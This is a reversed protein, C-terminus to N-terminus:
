SQEETLANVVCEMQMSRSGKILFTTDSALLKLLSKNLADYSEFHFANEGYALMAHVSLEGITFLGDIGAAKALRGADRHFMEATEGLEGMDGLVLYRAGSHEALVNLAASLSTPNANYTDDIVRSRNKGLKVQLRGKVAAMNELGQKISTLSIDLSLTCAAAALANMVNHRGALPLCINTSVANSVLEFEITSADQSVSINKACVDALGSEVGFSIQDLHTCQKRWFEAYEDDANIIATGSSQLGSYIEAKAKAVGDISGFGELHAPACQTIVAVDPRTISSLWEIEGPHNAGMEVVAYKHKKDLGFLTLPVGIDNNFNGSTAHVEAVESLISNVMEKVTTKGNSGTIAIVPIGIEERWAKALLGMARRSDNVKIFPKSQNVERELLVSSAGNSEAVSIFDHGDFNEGSLAIFLNGKDVTRSDISCGTFVVDKGSFHSEVANAANALSMNIM